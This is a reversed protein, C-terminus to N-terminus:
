VEPNPSADFAAALNDYKKEADIDIIECFVDWTEDIIDHGSTTTKAYGNAVQYALPLGIDAWTFFDNWTPHKEAEERYNSWLEALIVCKSLFPTKSM